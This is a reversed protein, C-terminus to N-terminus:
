NVATKKTTTTCFKDKWEFGTKNHLEDLEKEKVPNRWLYEKGLWYEEDEQDSWQSYDEENLTKGTNSVLAPKRPFLSPTYSDNSYWCGRHWLGDEENIIIQTGESDMFLLKSGYVFSALIEQFTDSYILDFNGLLIPRLYYKVFHWTDSHTSLVEKVDLIGNHMMWLDKSARIGNDLYEGKKIVRFPHAMEKVRKGHTSYRLHFAVNDLHSYRKYFEAQQTAVTENGYGDMNYNQWAFTAKQFVAKEVKVRGDDIFMVGIGDDNGYIAAEEIISYHPLNADAEAKSIILCM